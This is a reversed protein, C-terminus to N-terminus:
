ALYAEIDTAKATAWVDDGPRLDMAALASATIEATLPLPGEIRVRVRDGLRDIDGVVGAWVNRASTGVPAVKAVSISQPRIVAFSRGAPADAIVVHEGADTTLVGDATTGTVLNTGVLDAVYRSRPHATVEGITGIQVVRGADLIAVRDALAYADVPDHTVLVRMGDFSTLHHRLDRRVEGRTGADLAALPEDLLLVRPGTALARALAVRQAQGGSLARPRSSAHSALGVRELWGAAISRADGKAMGRARLGFAVNELASMHAFLLYDQFVVGMPRREAPVLVGAAPDDLVEGDVAIRGRDIAVLGALARLLTSKGAGNPGLIAVVEGPAVTLEVDLDLSGLALGVSAELSM